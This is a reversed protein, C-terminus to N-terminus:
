NRWKFDRSNSLKASGLKTEGQYVNSHITKDGKNNKGMTTLQAEALGVAKGAVTTKDSSSLNLFDSTVSIKLGRNSDYSLTDIYKSYSYGKDGSDAYKQDENLGDLLSQNYKSVDAKTLGLQDKSSVNKKEKQETQVNKTSSDSKDSGIFLSGFAAPISIIFILVSIAAVKGSINFTHTFWLIVILAAIFAILLFIFFLM